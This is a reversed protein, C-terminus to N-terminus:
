RKGELDKLLEADLSGAKDGKKDSKAPGKEPMPMDPLSDEAKKTAAQILDMVMDALKGQEGALAELRQTQQADLQGTQSRVKELEATQRQIEEQMLKLLKLEALNQIAPPAGAEPGPPQQQDEPPPQAGTEEPKLAERLQTLRRLADEEHDKTAAGTEGAELRQAAADLQTQAGQLGLVFAAAAQVTTALQGSEDALLREEGAIGHLTAQQPDTFKGNQKRRFEELRDTEAVVNKQRAILGEIHQELRALQERLLDQEAQKIQQELQRKTEELLDQAAAAQDQSEDHLDTAASDASQDMAAAAQEGSESARRAQLRELKRSLERVEEALKKAQQSLRELKRKRSAEQSDAAAQALERRLQQQRQALGDLEGAAQHLSQTTRALEADRRRALIDQLEALGSLVEQQTQHATGPRVEQLEGSASRMRGGIALRRAADLADALTGAMLPDSQALRQRMETMRSQLKEYRRALELQRRAFQRSSARGASADPSDSAALELRLRDTEDALASQDSRISGIERALRSFNDWQSLDGLLSELAAIVREQGAGATALSQGVDAPVDAGCGSTEKNEAGAQASKLAATLEHSIGALDEKALRQVKELLETMRDAAAQSSVRNNALEDLLAVIRAEVGDQPDTLLRQVQRQNLEASQLHSLDRPELQGREKLRIELEATQDRTERQLRLVEALQTLISSQQQVVRSELEEESIITLRRVGAATQQPKQDEAVIRVALVSGDALGPILALDWATDLTLSQGATARAETNGGAKSDARQKGVYLEFVQEGQDSADPRLYRLEVRAIALDDKVLGRIPVLARPTVLAHDAPSEWSITPPADAVVQLEIREQRGTPLASADVVECWVEGSKDALWPTRPDAPAQFSKGDAAVAVSVPLTQNNGTKLAASKIPKDVTGRLVIQSGALARVLKRGRDVPWHAYAPPTVEMVLDTIKPPLVVELTTWTMHYDDGGVARYAFPQTVNDLRLVMRDGLRKMPHAEDRGDALHVQLEVAEPLEGHRDIVEVEFDEGVALVRPAAAFALAHRAPWADRGWPMALRVLGLPVLTPLALALGAAAIAVLGLASLVRRPRRPDVVKQFDLEGSLAETEAVVARRLDLSGATPDDAPQELFAIASSLRKDLAPFHKEVRQAVGVLNRRSGVAPAIWRLAAWGLGGAVALSLIWRLGPDHLRLLYDALSAAAIIAAAALLFCAAGYCWRLRRVRREVADVRQQLPHPM